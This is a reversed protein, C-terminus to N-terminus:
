FLRGFVASAEPDNTLTYGALNPLLLRIPKNFDSYVASVQLIYPMNGTEGQEMCRYTVNAQTVYGDEIVLELKANEIRIGKIRDLYPTKLKAGPVNLRYRLKGGALRSEQWPQSWSESIYSPFWCQIGNQQLFDEFSVERKLPPIKQHHEEGTEVNIQTVEGQVGAFGDRYCLQYAGAARWLPSKKELSPRRAFEGEVHSRYKPAGGEREFSEEFSWRSTNYGSPSEESPLDDCYKPDNSYFIQTTLSYSDLTKMRGIAATLEELSPTGGCSSLLFAALTLAAFIAAMHRKKM